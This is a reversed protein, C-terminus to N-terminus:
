THISQNYEFLLLSTGDDLGIDLRVDTSVTQDLSDADIDAQFEINLTRQEPDYDTSISQVQSIGDVDNIEARFVARIQEINPNKVLVVDRYPIGVGMDLFYESAFTLLRIKVRQLVADVGQTWRIDGLIDLDHNSTLNFDKM